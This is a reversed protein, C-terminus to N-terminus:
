RCPESRLDGPVPGAGITEGARAYMRLVVRQGETASGGADRIRRLASWLGEAGGAYERASQGIANVVRDLGRERIEESFFREGERRLLARLARFDRGSESAEIICGSRDRRVEGREESMMPARAGYSRLMMAIRLRDSEKRFDLDDVCSGHSDLASRLTQVSVTSLDVVSVEGSWYWRAESGMVDVLDMIDLFIYVLCRSAVWQWTGSGGSDTELWVGGYYCSRDSDRGLDIRWSDKLKSM